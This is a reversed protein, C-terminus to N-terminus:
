CCNKSNRPSEHRGFRGCLSAWLSRIETVGFYVFMTLVIVSSATAVIGVHHHGVHSAVASASGPAILWDFCYGGIMSGVFVVTLYVLLPRIGFRGYISGVTALNSAPGAMLFVMAASVPMGQAVLAAAIPVSATACVYLPLAIVLVILMGPVSGAQGVREMWEQPLYVSIAASVIIGILMWFWISRFVEVAHVVSRKLLSANAPDGGDQGCCTAPSAGAQGVVPLQGEIEGDVGFFNTLWGGVIGLVFASVMKFVAFPWGFFSMSVLVSDIGTQPTSILFGVAAGDDAGDNKMGIGAPIVGCSCLPLPVGFAVARVVGWPGRFKRKVLSAPLLVHLVGAILMGLLLWPSLELLIKWCEQLM